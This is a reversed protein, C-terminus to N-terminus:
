PCSSQTAQKTQINGTNYILLQRSNDAAKDKTLQTNCLVFYPNELASGSASETNGSGSFCLPGKATLKNNSAVPGGVMFVKDINNSSCTAIENVVKRISFVLYGNNWDTGCSDKRCTGTSSDLLCPCIKVLRNVKVAESRAQHLSALLGNIGSTLKYKNVFGSFSPIAVTALVGAVVVAVLLEILTFGTKQVM